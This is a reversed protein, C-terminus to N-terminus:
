GPDQFAVLLANLDEVAHHNGAGAAPCPLRERDPPNHLTFAHLALERQMRRADGLHFHLPGADDAAGLQVEETVAHALGDLETLAAASLGHGAGFLLRM